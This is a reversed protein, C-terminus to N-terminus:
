NTSDVAGIHAKFDEEQHNWVQFIDNKVMESFFQRKKVGRYPLWSPSPASLPWIHGLNPPGITIKGAVWKPFLMKERETASSFSPRDIEQPFATKECTKPRYAVGM